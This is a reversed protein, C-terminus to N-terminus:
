PKEPRGKTQGRQRQSRGNLPDIQELRRDVEKQDINIPFQGCGLYQCFATPPGLVLGAKGMLSWGKKLNEKKGAFKLDDAYVSLM